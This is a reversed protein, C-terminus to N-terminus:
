QILIKGEYMHMGCHFKIESYNDTNIKVKVEENMPLYEKIKLDPFIVEELCSNSDKRLFKLTLPKNRKAKIISPKYGGEVIVVIQDSASVEDKKGFFFWYIFIVFVGGAVSVLIKELSM